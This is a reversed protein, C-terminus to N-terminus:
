SYYYTGRELILYKNKIYLNGCKTDICVMFEFAKDEISKAPYRIREWELQDVIGRHTETDWRALHMTRMELPQDSVLINFQELKIHYNKEIFVALLENVVDIAQHCNAFSCVKM